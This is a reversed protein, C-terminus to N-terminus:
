SIARFKTSSTCRRRVDTLGGEIPSIRGSVRKLLLVDSTSSEHKPIPGPQKRCLARQVLLPTSKEGAAPTRRSKVLPALLSSYPLGSSPLVSSPPKTALRGRFLCGRRLCGRLLCGRLLSRRLLDRLRCGRLLCGQLLRGRLRCGRRLCSSSNKM